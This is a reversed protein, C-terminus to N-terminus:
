RRSSFADFVGLSAPTDEGALRPLPLPSSVTRPKAGDILAPAAARAQRPVRQRWRSWGWGVAAVLGFGALASQLPGFASGAAIVPGPALATDVAAARASMFGTSEAQRIAAPPADGDARVAVLTINRYDLGEVSAMVMSKINPTLMEVDLSGLHKIFVAASAPVVRNSLPDNHPIAVHV